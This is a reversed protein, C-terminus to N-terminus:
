RTLAALRRRSLWRVACFEVGFGRLNFDVGFGGWIWELDM